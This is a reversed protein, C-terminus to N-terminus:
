VHTQAFQREPAALHPVANFQTMSLSAGIPHFQHMSTNMVALATRAFAAMELGMTLRFAMSIFGGSTVALARGEGAAIDHLVEDTRSQFDHFTEFDGDILGEQWSTFVLPLHEIFGTRDTPLAVGLKKHVADSLDFYAVENLRADIVVDKCGMSAATEQHRTLTGCYVRDFHEGISTLYEGLWAAQQHGLDSLKDYSKEDSSGTNAQGHRILTVDSM